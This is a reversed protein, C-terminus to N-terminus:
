PASHETRGSGTLRRAVPWLLLPAAASAVVALSPRNSGTYGLTAFALGMPLSGAALALVFKSTPMRALGALCAVVEALLPLPRALAVAWGGSREFFAHTRALDQEGALLVAARRGLTRCLGFAVGGALMSGAAGILGGVVPGYLIGLAAMVVTAPVPLFLDSVILGVAVAWAWPGYSQLWAVGGREQFARDFRDGFVVLPVTFLIALGVLILLLRM